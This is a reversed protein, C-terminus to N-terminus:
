VVVDGVVGGDSYLVSVAWFMIISLKEGRRRSICLFGLLSPAASEKPYSNGPFSSLQSAALLIM